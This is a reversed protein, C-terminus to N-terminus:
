VISTRIQDVAAVSPLLITQVTEDLSMPDIIDNMVMIAYYTYEPWGTTALYRYWNYKDPVSYRPDLPHSITEPHSILWDRHARYVTREKSDVAPLPAGLKIFRELM